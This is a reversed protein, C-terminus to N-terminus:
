GPIILQASEVIRLFDEVMLHAFFKSYLDFLVGHAPREAKRFDFFYVLYVDIVRAQQCHLSGYISETANRVEDEHVGSFDRLTRRWLAANNTSIGKGGADRS